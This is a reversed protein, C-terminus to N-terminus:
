SNLDIPFCFRDLALAQDVVEPHEIILREGRRIALSVGSPGLCLTEGVAIGKLKLKRVALYCVLGRALARLRAKSPRRIAEPSVNL